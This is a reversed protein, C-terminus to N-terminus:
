VPNMMLCKEIIAVYGAKDPEYAWIQALTSLTNNLFPKHNRYILQYLQEVGMHLSEVVDPDPSGKYNDPADSGLVLFPYQKHEGRSMEGCDIADTFHSMACEEGLERSLTALKVERQLVKHQDYHVYTEIVTRAKKLSDVFLDRRAKKEENSRAPMKSVKAEMKDSIETIESVIFEVMAQDIKLKEAGLKNVAATIDSFQITGGPLRYEHVQKHDSEDFYHVVLIKLDGNIKVCTGATFFDLQIM